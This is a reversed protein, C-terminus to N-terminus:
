GGGSKEVIAFIALVQAGRAAVLNRFMPRLRWSEAASASAGVAAATMATGGALVLRDDGSASLPAPIHTPIHTPAHSGGKMHRHSPRGASALPASSGACRWATRSSGARIARGGAPRAPRIRTGARAGHRAGCPPARPAKPWLLPRVTASCARSMAPVRTMTRPRTVSPM